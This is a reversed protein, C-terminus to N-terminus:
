FEDKEDAFSDKRRNWIWLGALVLLLPWGKHLLGGLTPFNSDAGRILLVFGPILPWWSAKDDTLRDLVYMLLFAIGLSLGMTDQMHPWHSRLLQSAGVAAVLCGSMLYTSSHRVAWYALFLGGVALLVFGQASLLVFQLVFLTLGLVVLLGAALQRRNDNKVECEGM